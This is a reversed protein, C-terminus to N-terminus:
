LSAPHTVKAAARERRDHEWEQVRAESLLCVASEVINQACNGSFGQSTFFRGADDLVKYLDQCRHSGLSYDPPLPAWPPICRLTVQVNSFTRISMSNLQLPHQDVSFSVCRVCCM